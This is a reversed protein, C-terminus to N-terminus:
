STWSLSQHTDELLYTVTLSLSLSYVGVTSIAGAPRGDTRGDARRGLVRFAFITEIVNSSNWAIWLRWRAAASTALEEFLFFLATPSAALETLLGGFWVTSRPPPPLDEEETVSLFLVPDESGEEERPPLSAPSSTAGVDPETLLTRHHKTGDKKHRRKAHFNGRTNTYAVGIRSRVLVAISTLVCLVPAQLRARYICPSLRLLLYSPM